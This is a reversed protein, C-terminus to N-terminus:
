LVKLKELKAVCNDYYRQIVVSIFYIVPLVFFILFWAPLKPVGILFSALIAFASYIHRHFFYMCMSAYSVRNGITVCVSNHALLSSLSFLFIIGAIMSVVSWDSSDVAWYYFQLLLFSACLLVTEKGKAIEIIKEPLFLGIVYVPFYILVRIDAHNFHNAIILLLFLIISIVVGHSKCVCKIAPTLIYFLMMMNMFWLTDPMPPIFCTLGFLSMVFNGIGKYWDYGMITTSAYLLLSAVCFLVWFRKIRRIYFAFLENYNKIFQKGLFYGSILVLGGMSSQVIMRVFKYYWEPMGSTTYNFSHWFGVILVIALSRAIDFVPDRKKSM